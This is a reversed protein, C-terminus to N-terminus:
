ARYASTLLNETNSPLTPEMWLNLLCFQPKSFTTRDLSTLFLFHGIYCYKPCKELGTTPLMCSLILRHFILSFLALPLFFNFHDVSTPKNSFLWSPSNTWNALTLANFYANATFRMNIHFDYSFAHYWSSRYSSDNWRSLSLLCPLFMVNFRLSSTCHLSVTKLFGGRSVCYPHWKPLCNWFNVM